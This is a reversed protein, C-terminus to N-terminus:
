DYYVELILFDEPHEAAQQMMGSNVYPHIGCIDDYVLVDQGYTFVGDVCDLAKRLEYVSAPYKFESECIRGDEGMKATFMESVTKFGQQTALKEFEGLLRICAMSNRHNWSLIEERIEDPKSAGFGYGDSDEAEEFPFFCDKFYSVAGCLSSDSVNENIVEQCRDNYIKELAAYHEQKGEPTRLSLIEELTFKKELEEKVNILVKLSCAM